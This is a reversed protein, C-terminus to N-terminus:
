LGDGAPRGCPAVSGLFPRRQLDWMRRFLGDQEVLEGFKGRQVVRGRDLVLVEDFSDLAVLRHTILLTSRGQMAVRLAGTLAHETLADLDATPEDLILIPADKLLARAVALRQAQGGSLRQGQEGVVTDYGEPLSLVLDELQAHRVAEVMEAESADPRALLLNERISANFLHTRQSVVSLQARWEEPRYARLDQGALLISGPPCDWFRLLLQVLTSKGAGSPGVIALRRGPPLDFTIGDLAHPLGPGYGFRLDDVRLSLADRKPLPLPQAPDAVAPQADVIELLRSGAALSQDLYQLAAALPLVAEFSAMVATALLALYVGDLRGQGVLRIALVLVAATALSMLLGELALHLGGISAMRVQAAGLRRGWDRVREMYPAEAGAALIDAVGQVGDVLAGNLEARAEVTRVGCPRSLARVLLPVGAGAALLFLLLVLALSPDFSGLLFAALASVLLAALPPAMARLFLDQLTEVDAVSRALLDGSRYHVLRAPALPELARYFWTRLGALLRFTVDHSVLRELYRLIGRAIGFFRVGVIAVSLEAISPHLAAKSIVWASTSMLGIGSAVTAATLLVALAMRGAFPAALSFLRGATRSM